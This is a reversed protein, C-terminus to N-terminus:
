AIRLFCVPLRLVYNGPIKRNIAFPWVFHSEIDVNEMGEQVIKGIRESMVNDGYVECTPYHTNVEKTNRITLFCITSLIKYDAPSKIIKVM